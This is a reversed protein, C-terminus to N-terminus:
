CSWVLVEFCLWAGQSTPTGRCRPTRGPLATEEWGKGATGDGLERPYSSTRWPPSLSEKPLSLAAFGASRARPHEEGTPQELTAPREREWGTTGSSVREASAGAVWGAARGAGRGGSWCSGQEPTRGPVGWAGPPEADARQPEGM